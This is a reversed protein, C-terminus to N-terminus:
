LSKGRRLEFKVLDKKHLIVMAGLLSAQSVINIVEAIWNWKALEGDQFKSSLYGMALLTIYGIIILILSPICKMKLAIYFLMAFFVTTGIIQIIVVPMSSNYEALPTLLLFGFPVFSMTNTNNTKKNSYLLGVLAIGLLVFGISQMPFFSKNLAVYDCIGAGALIKHIAKLVGALFIMSVGTALLAYNGKVLKNYLDNLLIIGSILFLIVPILDVLAMPISFDQSDLLFM